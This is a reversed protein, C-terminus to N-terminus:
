EEDHGTYWVFADSSGQSTLQHGGFDATDSFMGVVYIGGFRDVALGAARSTGAGIQRVARPKILEGAPSMRALFGGGGTLETADFRTTGSYWGVVVTNGRTDGAVGRARMYGNTSATAQHRDCNGKVCQGVLMVSDGLSVEPPLAGYGGAVHMVGSPGSAVVDLQRARPAWLGYFRGSPDLRVLYAVQGPGSVLPTEGFVATGAVGGVIHANGAPDLAIGSAWERKVTTSDSGARVAWVFRGDVADLRAVFLDTLGAASLTTDGFNATSAFLGCIMLVDRPGLALDEADDDGPGGASVAWLVKGAPDLKLVFVDLGGASTLTTDGFTATRRFKGAVYINGAGDVGLGDTGQEQYGSFGDSNRVPVGDLPLAWRLKRAQPDLKALVTRPGASEPLTIPGGLGEITSGTTYRGLLVLDGAEDIVVRSIESSGFQIAWGPPAGDADAATPGDGTETGADQPAGVLCVNDCGALLVLSLSLLLGRSQM